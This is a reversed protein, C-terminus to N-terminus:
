LYNIEDMPLYPHMPLSLVQSALVEAIPFDTRKHNLTNFATQQHMCTGYYIMTPIGKIKYDAMTEDRSDSRLTYQAWSSVFGEPIFPTKYVDSLKKTYNTAIENRKILEAPFEALKELLIAAQITDLRSNM